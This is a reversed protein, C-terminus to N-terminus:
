GAVAVPAPLRVDRVDRPSCTFLRRYATPTTGRLRTFHHRLMTSSGFGCRRAIEEIPADTSELLREALSVRQTLLWTHPSTGTEDQFRRAFTRTSM